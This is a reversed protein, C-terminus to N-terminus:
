RHIFPHEVSGRAGGSAALLLSGSVTHCGLIDESIELDGGLPKGPLQPHSHLAM